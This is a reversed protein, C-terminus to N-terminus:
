LQKQCFNMIAKLTKEKEEVFGMHGSKELVLMEGNAPIRIRNKVEEFPIYNDHKGAIFLLPVEGQELIDLRSPRSIMGNLVAIIGEASIGSAILKNHEVAETFKETNFDAFMRPINVPYIIDKKGSEVIKIERKRNDILEDTDAFPHSHFLCYGYLRHPYKEVFALAVYGGMSHGTLMAKDLGEADMVAKVTEAMFDMTHEDGFVGSKGHGPLDIAITRYSAALGAAFGDWIESSELYGHLLIIVDGEGEDRYWIEGQKYDINKTM